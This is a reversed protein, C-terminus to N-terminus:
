FEVSLSVNVTRPTSTGVRVAGFSDTTTGAQAYNYEEDTINKLNLQVKWGDAKYYALADLQAWGDYKARNETSVFSGTQAFVGLGLGLGKYQGRQVEYVGFLNGSHEPIGPLVNGEQGALSPDVALLQNDLYAYGAVVRFSDNVKGIAQIDFGLTQTEGLNTSWQENAPLGSSAPDTVAVDSKRLDFIAATIDLQKNLLQKKIGLEYQETREPDLPAGGIGNGTAPNFGTATTPTFGKAWSGYYSLTDTAKYVLGLRPSIDDSDVGAQRDEFQTSRLGALVNWKEGISILDQIVLGQQRASSGGQTFPGVVVGGPPIGSYQGTNVNYTIQTGSASITNNVIREYDGQLLFKHGINQGFLTGGDLQWQYKLVMSDSEGQGGQQSARIAVDGNDAVVQMNPGLARPSSDFLTKDVRTRSYNATISSGNDFFHEALLAFRNYDSETNENWGPIGYFQTGNLRGSYSYGTANNGDLVQGRDQTYTDTIYEYQATVLTQPSLKWTLSPAVLQRDRFTFDRHSGSDESSLILRYAFTDSLPGTFDAEVRYYDDSGAIVEAARYETFKPKKTVYNIVGGPEGQGYLISAPGKLIDYREINATETTAINTANFVNNIRAGDKYLSQSADFGRISFKEEGGNGQKFKTVGAVNRLADEVNNVQQDELIDIPISITTLPTSMPDAEFGLATNTTPEKYVREFGTVQVEQLTTAENQQTSQSWAAPHCGVAAGIAVVLARKIM